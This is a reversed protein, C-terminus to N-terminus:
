GHVSARPALVRAWTSLLRRVGQTVHRCSLTAGSISKIDEGLLIPDSPTRGKFQALWAPLRVEGGYAEQYSLIEVQRVAGTSDLALAYAILEHKGYVRDAFFWGGGSARWAHVDHTLVPAHADRAIAAAQADTLTVFNRQLTQGPFMLAQAQEVTLYTAGCAATIPAALPVLPILTWRGNM